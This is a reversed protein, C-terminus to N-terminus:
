FEVDSVAKVWGYLLSCLMQSITSDCPRLARLAHLVNDLLGSPGCGLSRSGLSRTMYLWLGLDFECQLIKWLYIISFPPTLDSRLNGTKKPSRKIFSENRIHNVFIPYSCNEESLFFICYSVFWEVEEWRCQIAGCKKVTQCCKIARLISCVKM